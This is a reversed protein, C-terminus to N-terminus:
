DVGHEASRAVSLYRRLEERNALIRRDGTKAIRGESLIVVDDALEGAAMLNQEVMLLTSQERVARLVAVVEKVVRPALGKTPEDVILLHSEVLLGRALSVMQQQGGSLSGATQALRQKLEPFLDFVLEYRPEAGRREALRLNEAVTLGAFVDRNEPVYAIGRRVRQHTPLGALSAGRFTLEGTHDLYGLISRMLTTKGVGNRGLVVTTRGAAVDLDLGHLIQSTGITTHLGRITLTTTM